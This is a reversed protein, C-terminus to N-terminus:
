YEGTMDDYASLDKEIEDDQDPVMNSLTELVQKRLEDLKGLEATIRPNGLEKKLCECLIFQAIYPWFEPFDIFDADATPVLANRIYHVLVRPQSVVFSAAAGVAIAAQTLTVQTASDISEIQTGPALLTSNTVFDDVALGVTTALDSLTTSGLAINGTVTMQPSTETIRPSFRIKTGVRPDNNVLQYEFNDGSTSQTRLEEQAEYRQRRRSRAIPYVKTGNTYVLRTIKNGYMNRPTSYLNRGAVLPINALSEFYQDEINLKHIESECFQIAEECYLLLEPADIFNEEALDLKDVVFAKVKAWTQLQSM